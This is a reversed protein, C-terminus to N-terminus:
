EPISVIDLFVAFVAFPEVPATMAFATVSLFIAVALIGAFYVPFPARFGRNNRGAGVRFETPAGLRVRAFLILGVALILIVYNRVHTEPPIEWALINHLILVASYIVGVIAILKFHKIIFSTISDM